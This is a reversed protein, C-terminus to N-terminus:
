MLAHLSIPTGNERQNGWALVTGDSCLAAWAYHAAYLAKVGRAKLQDQQDKSPNASNAGGLAPACCLREVLSAPMHVLM